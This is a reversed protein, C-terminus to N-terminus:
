RAAKLRERAAQFDIVEGRASAEARAEDLQQYVALEEDALYHLCEGGLFWLLDRPVTPAFEPFTTFLRSLLGPGEAYLSENDRSAHQCGLALERLPDRDDLTSTRRAFNDAFARWQDRCYALYQEDNM